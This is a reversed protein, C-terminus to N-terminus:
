AQTERDAGVCERKEAPTPRQAILFPHAEAAELFVCVVNVTDELIGSNVQTRDSPAGCQTGDLWHAVPGSEGEEYRAENVGIHEPKRRVRLGM